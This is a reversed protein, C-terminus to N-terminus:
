RTRESGPASLVSNVALGLLVLVTGAATWQGPRPQPVTRPSDAHVPIVPAAPAETLTDCSM